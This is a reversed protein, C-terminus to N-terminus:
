SRLQHSADQLSRGISSDYQQQQQQEKAALEITSVRGTERAASLETSLM